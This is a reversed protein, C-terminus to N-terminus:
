AEDEGRDTRRKRAKDRRADKIADIEESFQDRVNDRAAEREEDTANEGLEAIAARLAARIELQLSLFELRRELFAERRSDPEVNELAEQVRIIIRDLGHRKPREIDDGQAFGVTSTVALALLVAIYKKM